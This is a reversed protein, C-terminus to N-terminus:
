GREYISTSSESLVDDLSRLHKGGSKLKRRTQAEKEALVALADLAKLPDEDTRLIDILSRGNLIPRSVLKDLRLINAQSFKNAVDSLYQIRKVSERKPEQGELWAYTTPRTVGLISALDSMSISFVDRINAVHKAPSMVDTKVEPRPEEVHIRRNPVQTLAEAAGHVTMMGGTGATWILLPVASLVASACPSYTNDPYSTIEPYTKKVVNM